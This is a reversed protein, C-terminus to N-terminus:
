SSSDYTTGDRNVKYFGSWPYHHHHQVHDNHNSDHNQEHKINSMIDFMNIIIVIMIIVIILVETRPASDQGHHSGKREKVMVARFPLDGVKQLITQDGIKMIFTVWSVSVKIVLNVSWRSNLIEICIHASKELGITKSVRLFDKQWFFEMDCQQQLCEPVVVLKFHQTIIASLILLLLLIFIEPDAWWLPYKQTVGGQSSHFRAWLRKVREGGAVIILILILSLHHHNARLHHKPQIGSTAGAFEFRWIHCM